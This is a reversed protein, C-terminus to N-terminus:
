ELSAHYIYHHACSGMKPRPEGQIPQNYCLAARCSDETIWNWVPLFLYQRFNLYLFLSLSYLYLYQSFAASPWSGLTRQVGPKFYPPMLYYFSQWQVGQVNCLLIRDAIDRIKKFRDFSTRDDRSRTGDAGMEGLQRGGVEPTPLPLERIPPPWGGFM